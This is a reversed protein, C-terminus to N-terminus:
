KNLQKVMQNVYVSAAAYLIGQVVGTLMSELGFGELVILYLCSLAIGIGGLVLPIFKDNMKSKKLVVGIIYLVVALVSLEPKLYDMIIENM